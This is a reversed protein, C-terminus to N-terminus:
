HIISLILLKIMHPTTFIQRTSKPIILIFFKNINTNPHQLLPLNKPLTIQHLLPTHPLIPSPTLTPPLNINQLFLQKQLFNHRLIM